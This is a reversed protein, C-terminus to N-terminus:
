PSQEELLHALLARVTAGDLLRLVVRRDAPSLARVAQVIATPALQGLRWAVLHLNGSARTTV